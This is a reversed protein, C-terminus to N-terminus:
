WQQPEKMRKKYAAYEEDTPPVYKSPPACSPDRPPPPMSGFQPTKPPVYTNIRSRLIKITRGAKDLWPDTDDLFLVTRRRLEDEGLDALMQKILV